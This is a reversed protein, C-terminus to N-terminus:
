KATFAEFFVPFTGLLGVAVLAFTAVYAVRPAIQKGRWLFALVVWAVLWAVVAYTTKGSLPGVPTSLVLADKLPKSAEALTTLIGLSASGIGAALLAALAPGNPKAQESARATM